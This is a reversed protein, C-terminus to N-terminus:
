RLPTVNKMGRQKRARALKIAKMKTLKRLAIPTIPTPPTSAISTTTTATTASGPSSSFLSTSPSNVSHGVPSPGSAAASEALEGNVYELARRTEQSEAWKGVAEELQHNWLVRLATERVQDHYDLSAELVEGTTFEGPQEMDVTGSIPTPKHLRAIVQSNIDDQMKKIESHYKKKWSEEVEVKRKDLAASKKELSENVEALKAKQQDMYAENKKDMLEKEEALKSKYQAFIDAKIEARFVKPGAERLRKPSGGKQNQRRASYFSSMIEKKTPTRLKAKEEKLAEITKNAKALEAELQACRAGTRNNAIAKLRNMENTQAVITAKYSLTDERYMAKYQELQETRKKLQETEGGCQTWLWDCLEVPSEDDSAPQQPGQRLHALEEDKAKLTLNLEDVYQDADRKLNLLAIDKQQLENDKQQLEAQLEGIYEENEQDPQDSIEQIASELAAIKDNFSTMMVVRQEDHSEKLNDKEDEFGAEVADMEDQHDAKFQEIFQEYEERLDQLEIQHQDYPIVSPASGPFSGNFSM